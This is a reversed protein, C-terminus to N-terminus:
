CPLNMGCGRWRSSPTATLRRKPPADLLEPAM